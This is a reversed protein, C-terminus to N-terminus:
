SAENDAVADAVPLELLLRESEIRLAGNQAQALSRVLRMSFGLGLLPADPWDGDNGYGPDLMEHEELGRLRRPRDFGIVLRGGYSDPQFWLAGQVTEGTQALSVLTRALHQIMRECQVPDAHAPPLDASASMRLRTRGQGEADIRYHEAIREILMALDVASPQLREGRIGDPVASRAALDIDDFAALLRRADSLINGAMERYHVGAPGFLQQEIIEAFGLIANLPTRLEHIVQRMSDLSAPAAPATDAPVPHPIEHVLPRRAQGRYGQFRGSAPDFFPVASLRWEGAYLGEGIFLRGHQFSSRRAFAGAVHGDPGTEGPLAPNSISIGILATRSAEGVWVFAGEADTEFPFTRLTAPDAMPATAADADVVGFDRARHASTFREIKDVLERIQSRESAIEGVDAVVAMEAPVTQELDRGTEEVSAPTAVGLDNSVPTSFGSLVLDTAGFAELARRTEPGIDRRGRLVGRATPGLRSLLVPWLLDPLRARSIAAACVAPRDSAFFEVLAPSRLRSGLEVVSAIRQAESLESSLDHLRAVLAVRDEQRLMTKGPQDHQALVDVCQRWLSAAAVGTRSEAALVTQTLDNYRM